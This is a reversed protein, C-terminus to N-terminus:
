SDEVLPLLSRGSMGTGACADERAKKRDIGHAALLDDAADDSLVEIIFLDTEFNDEILKGLKETGELDDGEQRIIHKDMYNGDGDRITVELEM